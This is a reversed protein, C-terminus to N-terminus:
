TNADTIKAELLRAQLTLMEKLCIGIIKHIQKQKVSAFLHNGIELNAQKIQTFTLAPHKM